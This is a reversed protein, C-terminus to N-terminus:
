QIPMCSYIVVAYLSIDIRSKKIYVHILNSMDRKSYFLTSYLLISYLLISYFLISFLLTSYFLEVHFWIIHAVQCYCFCRFCSQLLAILLSTFAAAYSQTWILSDYYRKGLIAGVYSFCFFLVFVTPRFCYQKQYNLDMRIHHQTVYSRPPCSLDCPAIDIFVHLSIFWLLCM